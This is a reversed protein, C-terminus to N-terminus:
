SSEESQAKGLKLIVRPLKKAGPVGGRNVQLEDENSSSDESKATLKPVELEVGVQGSKRPRGRGNGTGQAKARTPRPPSPVPTPAKSPIKSRDRLTMAIPPPPVAKLSSVISASVEDLPALITLTREIWTRRSGPAPLSPRGGRRKKTAKELQTLPNLKLNAPYKKTVPEPM